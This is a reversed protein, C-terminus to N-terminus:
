DSDFDTGFLNSIWDWTDHHVGAAHMAVLGNGKQFWQIFANKQTDDLSKGIDTTSIFLAVNYRALNEPTFKGSDETVDM